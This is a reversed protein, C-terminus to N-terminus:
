NSNWKWLARAHMVLMVINVPLLGWLSSDIMVILWPIESVIGLVPGALSKNGYYYVSAMTAISAAIQWIM